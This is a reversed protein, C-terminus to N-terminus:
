SSNKFSFIHKLKDFEKADLLYTEKGNAAEHLSNCLLNRISFWAQLWPIYGPQSEEVTDTKSINIM